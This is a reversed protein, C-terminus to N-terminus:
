SLNGWIRDNATVYGNAWASPNRKSRRYNSFTRRNLKSLIADHHLISHKAASVPM